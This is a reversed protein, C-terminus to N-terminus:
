FSKRWTIINKFFIWKSNWQQFFLPLNSMTYMWYTLPLNSSSLCSCSSRLLPEDEPWNVDSQTFIVDFPSSMDLPASANWCCCSSLPASRWPLSRTPPDRDERLLLGLRCGLSLETARREDARGRRGRGVNARAPCGRHRYLPPAHQILTDTMTLQKNQRWSKTM